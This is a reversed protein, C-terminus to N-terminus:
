NAAEKTETIGLRKKQRKVYDELAELMTGDVDGSAILKLYNQPNSEETFVIREGDMLKVKGQPVLSPPNVVPKPVVTKTTAGAADAGDDPEEEEEELEIKDSGSLGAYSITDDYVKLFNVAGADSFSNKLTLDDIAVPDPPRDAGWTSWFKRMIKPRLACQKLIQKKVSDQQARIYTRGEETLSAERADGMGEYKLLGFSRLAALTQDSQSSKEKMGWAPGVKNVRAPHRGFLKEFAELREVATKLPIFPFSPSRDKSSKPEAPKSPEAM